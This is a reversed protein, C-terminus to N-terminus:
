DGLMSFLGSKKDFKEKEFGQKSGERSLIATLMLGFLAGFVHLLMIGNLPRVQRCSVCFFECRGSGLESFICTLISVTFISVNLLTQLLWQNLAFGSVELLAILTLQVPNTKGLVAGISILASAAYLEAVLVSYSRM